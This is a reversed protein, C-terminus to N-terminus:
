SKDEESQSDAQLIQTNNETQSHRRRLLQRSQRTPYLSWRSLRLFLCLLLMHLELLNFELAARVMWRLWSGM